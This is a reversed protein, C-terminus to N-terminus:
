IVGVFFAQYKILGKKNQISLTKNLL